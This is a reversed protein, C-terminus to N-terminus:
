GIGQRFREPQELHLPERQAEIRTQKVAFDLWEAAGERGLDRVLAAKLKAWLQATESQNTRTM